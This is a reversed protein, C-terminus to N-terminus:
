QDRRKREQSAGVRGSAVFLEKLADTTEARQDPPLQSLLDNFDKASRAAKTLADMTKKSVKSELIDLAANAVTAKASFFSPLRLPKLETQLVEGLRTIGAKAQEAASEESTIGKAVRRLSNMSIDPMEKLINYSGVGFIDEILDPNNGEVVAVFAKPNKQYMELLHAGLKQQGISQMAQAYDALYRRYGTGGAEEIADILAPKVKEMVSAAFRNVQRQEAAPYMRQIVANVSHKRIADLAEASLVGDANTYTQIDRVVRRISNLILDNGAYEPNKLKGALQAALRNGDLVNLGQGQISALAKERERRAAGAILSDRAADDMVRDASQALESMYTYRGPVRPQGKVTYTDKARGEARQRAGEFRRVDQVKGTTREQLAQAERTLRPVNEGALNAQGLERKLVPILEENYLRKLEEQAMRSETQNRGGAVRELEKLREANRKGFLDTFFEPDRSEARKLLAQTTPLNLGSLAESASAGEAAAALAARAKPLNDGLAKAAVQAARGEGGTLKGVQSAGYRLVPPIAAGLLQGGMEYSAGTMLESPVRSIAEKATTPKYVGALQGVTQMLERGTAYGLGAGGVMGFPGAPSGLAGGLLMGAQEVVPTALKMTGEATPSEVEVRGFRPIVRTQKEPKDKGLFLDPDFKAPSESPTSSSLFADPDFAM